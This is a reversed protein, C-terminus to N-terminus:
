KSTNTKKKLSYNFQESVENISVNTVVSYTTRNSNKRVQVVIMGPRFHLMKQVAFANTVDTLIVTYGETYETGEVLLEKISKREMWECYPGQISQLNERESNLNNESVVIVKELNKKFGEISNLADKLSNTTWHKKVDSVIRYSGTDKRNKFVNFLKIDKNDSYKIKNFVVDVIRINKLNGTVFDIGKLTDLNLFTNLDVEIFNIRKAETSNGNRERYISKMHGLVNKSVKVGNIVIVNILDSNTQISIKEM